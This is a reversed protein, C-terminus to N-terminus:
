KKPAAANPQAKAANAKQMSDAVRRQDEMFKQQAAEKEKQAVEENTVNLIDMDFVLIADPKIGGSPNGAKGYGLSSPLYITAKTGKKMEQLADPWGPVIGELQGVPVEYPQVHKFAPDTNSDFVKGSDLTKGTYNVSAVDNFTIKDGTGEEKIVVYTGWKGKVAKLNNKALYDEIIKSDKATQDKTEALRKEIVEIDKKRAKARAVPMHSKQASDAQEKTAYANKIVISTVIWDGKKIFPPLQVPQGASMAQKTARAIISDTSMKIIVSDGVHSSKFIEKYPSPFNATDYTGYQPMGEDETSNLVSDKIKTISSLEMINGVVLKAGKSNTFLKYMSGDKAKRFPTTCSALFLICVVAASLIQKM